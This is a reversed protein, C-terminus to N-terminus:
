PSKKANNSYVKRMTTAISRQIDPTPNIKIAFFSPNAINILIIAPQKNLQINNQLLLKGYNDQGLHLDMGNAVVSCYNGLAKNNLAGLLTATLKANSNSTQM